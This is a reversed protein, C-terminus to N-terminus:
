LRCYLRICRIVSADDRTIITTDVVDGGFAQGELELYTKRGDVTENGFALSDYTGRAAAFVM